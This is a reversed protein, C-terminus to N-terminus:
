RVTSARRMAPSAILAMSALALVLAVGYTIENGWSALAAGRMLAVQVIFMGLIALVQTGLVRGARVLGAGPLVVALLLALALVGEIIGAAFLPTAEFSAGGLHLKVGFHLVALVGFLCAELFTLLIGIRQAGTAREVDQRARDM